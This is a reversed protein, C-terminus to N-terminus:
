KSNLENLYDEVDQPDGKFVIAQMGQLLAGACNLTLDDVFLCEAPNLNFKNFLLQYIEPMPKVLGVCGSIIIGDFYELGPVSAKYDYVFAPANSLLYIGYGQEKKRKIFDVMGDVNHVHDFWYMANHIHPWYEKPLRAQFRKEAEDATLKGWDLLAWEISAFMVRKLTSREPEDYINYYDMILDPTWKILVNGMDFVLNKIM